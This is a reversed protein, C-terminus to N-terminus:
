AVVPVTSSIVASGSGSALPPSVDITGSANNGGAVFVKSAGSNLTFSATSPSSSTSQPYVSITVDANGAGVNQITATSYWGTGPLAQAHVVSAISLVLMLSFISLVVRKRM